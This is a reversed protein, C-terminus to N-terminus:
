IRSLYKSKYKHRVAGAAMFSYYFAVGRQNFVGTFFLMLIFVICVERSFGKSRFVINILSYALTVIGFVGTTYLTLPVSAMFIPPIFGYGVGYIQEKASLRQYMHYAWTRGQIANYSSNIGFIRGVIAQFAEFQMAIFFLVFAIIIVLMANMLINEFKSTSKERRYFVYWSMWVFVSLMLGMGSTTLLIGFTMFIAKKVSTSKTKGAFLASIICIIVYQSFHAPEPFCGGFRPISGIYRIETSFSEQDYLLTDPTIPSAIGTLFYILYQMLVTCTLIIGITELYSRARDLDFSKRLGFYLTIICIFWMYLASVVGKNDNQWISFIISQVTICVLYPVLPKLGITTRNKKLNDLIVFPSAITLLFTGLNMFPLPSKLYGLLPLLVIILNYLSSYRIKIVAKRNM